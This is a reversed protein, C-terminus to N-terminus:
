SGPAVGLTKTEETTEPATAVAVWRSRTVTRRAIRRRRAKPMLVYDEADARDTLTRARAAEDNPDDTHTDEWAAWEERINDASPTALAARQKARYEIDAAITRYAGRWGRAFAAAEADRPPPGGDTAALDARIQAVHWAIEAAVDRTTDADAALARMQGATAPPNRREVGTV